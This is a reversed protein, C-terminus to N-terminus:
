IENLIKHGDRNSIIMEVEIKNKDRVFDESGFDEDTLEKRDLEKMDVDYCKTLQNYLSKVNCELGSTKFKVHNWDLEDPEFEVSSGWSTGFEMSLVLPCGNMWILSENNENEFHYKFMNIISILEYEYASTEISDHVTGYMLSKMGRKKIDAYMRSFSTMVIDSGTSQILYNFSERLGHSKLVKDSSQADPIPMYRNFMNWIFGHKTAFAEQRRILETINPITSRHRALMDKAEEITIGLKEAQSQPGSGYLIAFNQTDKTLIGNTIFLRYKQEILDYVTEKKLKRTVKKVKVKNFKPVM